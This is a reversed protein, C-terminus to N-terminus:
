PSLLQKQADKSSVADCNDEGDNKGGEPAPLLLLPRASPTGNDHSMRAADTADVAGEKKGDIAGSLPEDM